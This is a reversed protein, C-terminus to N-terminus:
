CRYVFALHFYPWKNNGFCDPEVHCGEDRTHGCHGVVAKELVRRGAFQLLRVTMLIDNKIAIFQPTPSGSQRVAEM